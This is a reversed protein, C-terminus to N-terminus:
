REHVFPDSWLEPYCPRVTHEIREAEAVIAMKLQGELVVVVGGGRQRTSSM